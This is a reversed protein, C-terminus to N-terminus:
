DCLLKEYAKAWLHATDAINYNKLTYKKAKTGMKRRLAKNRILREIEVDWKNNDKILVGMDPTIEEYPGDEFSQAIVPVELMSAELFKINSKCRNFYNDKRPIIMFDLMADDLRDQYEYNPCWPFHDIDMTDWFAYDEKFIKNVRPNNKRHERDGLGFMVVEVDKRASLKRLTKIIHSYDYDFAVSGIMGIRVKGNTRKPTEAWDDRDVCNPLVVVNDNLKRYEKALFETSTTVLDASQIGDDILDRRSKLNTQLPADINLVDLPHNDEIQFTDDNDIVIKKGKAKLINVLNHYSEDEPRHFVVIDAWNFEQMITNMPKRESMRSTKDMLYGNHFAPLMIRVYSCGDYGSNVMLINM